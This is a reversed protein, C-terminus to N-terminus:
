LKVSVSFFMANREYDFNAINSNNKTYTYEASVNLWPKWINQTISASAFYRADDRRTNYKFNHHNYEKDYYNGYVTINTKEFIDYSIGLLTKLECFDQDKGHASNIEYGIGCFVYGDLGSFGHSYNASLENAHGDRANDTFYNNRYYSYSFDVANNNDILWMVSPNIQHQMLYSESDVWYYIPRYKLGLKVSESFKYNLYINGISGTLDYESLDQYRTQYHSYGIGSTVRRSDIMDYKGSFYLMYASDSEDAVIDLDTPELVVNDDYLYGTKLYLHYPKASAQNKKIVQVWSRANEKLDESDAIKMVHEFLKVAEDCRDLRYGCIGAYYLGNAEISPSMKAAKVLYEGAAEYQELKYLNIGSYYIALVNSPEQAAVEQFKQLAKEYEKKEQYLIGLSYTLGPIQPNLLFAKSLYHAAVDLQELELYVRGLYFNIRANEPDLSIAKLLLDQSETFNREEYAFVGLDYYNQAIEDAIVPNFIGLLFIGIFFIKFSQRM